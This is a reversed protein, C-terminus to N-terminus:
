EEKIEDGTTECTQVIIQHLCKKIANAEGDLENTGFMADLWVAFDTSKFIAFIPLYM